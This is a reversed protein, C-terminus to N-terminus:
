DGQQGGSTHEMSGGRQMVGNHRAERERLWQRNAALTELAVAHAAAVRVPATGGPVDRAAVSELAALPPRQEAFIPHAAAWEDDTLEAFTKGAAVCSGVLRGVAEHAERFPVGQRALLDAADTALSFDGVAAQAMKARNFHATRLMPPYVDLVALMTGVSDFLGEKDEQLDKNYALPLGKAVTLMGILNGYVRGTKGRALEAVDPNKKQPMISSGTAFADDFIVYRIEGSSWWVLEECLRSCHMSVMACCYLTDIVLDRDAITDM